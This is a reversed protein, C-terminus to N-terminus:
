FGGPCSFAEVDTVHRNNVPDVQFKVFDGVGFPDTCASLDQPIRFQYVVKDDFSSKIMGHNGPPNISVVTGLVTGSAMAPLVSMIIMVAVGVVIPITWIGKMGMKM